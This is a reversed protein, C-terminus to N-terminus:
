ACRWVPKFQACREPDDSYVTDGYVCWCHGELPFPHIGVVLEVPVGASRGLAWTTLAREKCEAPLLHSAAVSRVTADIERMEVEPDVASAARCPCGIRWAGVTHAWGLLRCNLWALALLLWAKLRRGPLLRTGWIIPVVATRIASRTTWIANHGDSTRRVLRMRELRVLLTVLDDRVREPPVGYERALREVAADPGVDLTTRLMRAAVGSLGHFRNGLDLLRSTGDEVDVYIVGDCLTFTDASM